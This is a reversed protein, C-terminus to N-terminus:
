ALPEPRRTSVYAQARPSRRGAAGLNRSSALGALGLGLLLGTSPEPVASLFEGSGSEFTAGNLETFRLAGSNIADSLAGDGAASSAGIQVGYTRGPEALFSSSETEFFFQNIPGSNDFGVDINVVAVEVADPRVGVEDFIGFVSRTELWTELGTIDYFRIFSQAFPNGLTNNSALHGDLTLSFSVQTPIGGPTSFTVTDFAGVLTQAFNSLPSADVFTGVDGHALDGRAQVFNGEQSAFINEFSTQAVFSNFAGNSSSFSGDGQLIWVGFDSAIPAAGVAPAYLGAALVAV